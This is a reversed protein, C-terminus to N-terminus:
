FEHASTNVETYRENHELTILRDPVDFVFTGFTGDNNEWGYYIELYDWALAEVAGELNRESLPYEPNESALQIKIGSPFPVRDNAANWAEIDEIQGSDGSGDALATFVAAKNRARVDNLPSAPLTETTDTM